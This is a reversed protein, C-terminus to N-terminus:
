NVCRLAQSSRVSVMQGCARAADPWVIGLGLREGWDHQIEPDGLALFQASQLFFGWESTPM